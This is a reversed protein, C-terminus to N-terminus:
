VITRHHVSVELVARVTLPKPKPAFSLTRQNARSREAVDGLDTSSEMEQEIQLSVVHTGKADSRRNCVLAKHPQRLRHRAHHYLRTLRTSVAKEKRGTAAAIAKVMFSEGIGLEINEYSPAVQLGDSVACNM